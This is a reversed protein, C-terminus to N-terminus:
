KLGSFMCHPNWGKHFPKKKSKSVSIQMIEWVETVQTTGDCNKKQGIQRVGRSSNKKLYSVKTKFKFIKKLKKM